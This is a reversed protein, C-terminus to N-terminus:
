IYMDAFHTFRICPNINFTNTKRHGWTGWIWTVAQASSASAPNLISKMDLQVFVEPVISTKPLDKDLCSKSSVFMDRYPSMKKILMAKYKSPFQTLSQESFAM